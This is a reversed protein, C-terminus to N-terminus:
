PKVDWEVCFLDNQLREEWGIKQSQVSSVLPLVVFACLMPIFHRFYVVTFSFRFFFSFRFWCNVTLVVGVHVCILTCLQRVCCLVSCNQYDERRKDELCDGNSLVDNVPSM